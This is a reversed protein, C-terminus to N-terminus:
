AGKKKKSLEDIIKTIKQSEDKNLQTRFKRTISPESINLEKAIEWLYVNRKKAYDRIKQNNM